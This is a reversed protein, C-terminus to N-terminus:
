LFFRWTLDDPNDWREALAPQLRLEADLTVLPEYLHALVTFTIFENLEHPDRTAPRDYLAIRLPRQPPPAADGCALAGALTVAAVFPVSRLRHRAGRLGGRRRGRAEGDGAGPSVRERRS